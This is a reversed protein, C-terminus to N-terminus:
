KWLLNVPKDESQVKEITSEVITNIDKQVDEISQAADVIYWPITGDAEDMEQLESFRTRVRQQM